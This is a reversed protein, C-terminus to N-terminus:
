GSTSAASQDSPSGKGLEDVKEQSFYNVEWAADFVRNLAVGSKEGLAAVQDATFLPKGAEDCCATVVFKVRFQERGKNLMEEFRDREVGTITRVYVTGGWEPVEVSRTKIDNAALIQAASLCAM